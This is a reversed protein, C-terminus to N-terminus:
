ASIPSSLRRPGRLRPRRDGDRDPRVHRNRNLGAAEFRPARAADSLPAAADGEGVNVVVMLPLRSLLGFGSLTREEAASL